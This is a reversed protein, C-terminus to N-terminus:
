HAPSSEHQERRKFSCAIENRLEILGNLSLPYEENAENLEELTPVHGWIETPDFSM